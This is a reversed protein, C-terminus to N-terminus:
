AQKARLVEKLYRFIHPFREQTCDYHTAVICRSRVLPMCRYLTPHYVDMLGMFPAVYNSLVENTVYRWTKSSFPGGFRKVRVSPSSLEQFPYITGSIGMWLEAEVDPVRSLYRALEFHYRTAGGADQLSFLQHDYLIRMSAISHAVVALVGMTGWWLLRGYSLMGGTM